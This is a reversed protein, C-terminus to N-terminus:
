TLPLRLQEGPPPPLVWRQVRGGDVTLWTGGGPAVPGSGGIPSPYVIEALLRMPATGLLLHRGTDLTSAVILDDTLYGSRPDWLDDAHTAASVVLAGVPRDDGLRLRLLVDEQGYVGPQARVLGQRRSLTLYESGAPQLDALVHDRWPCLRLYIRGREAVAWGIAARDDVWLSLGITRGDPHCIPPRDDVFLGVRCRDLLSCTAVELLWVEQSAPTPGESGRGPVIVWLYAGDATFVGASSGSPAGPVSALQRGSGDLLVLQGARSVAVLSLDDAVAVIGLQGTPLELRWSPTLQEDLVVLEHLATRQVLWRQGALPRVRSVPGLRVEAALVAEVADVPALIVQRDTM